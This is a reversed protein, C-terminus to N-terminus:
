LYPALHGAPTAPTFINPDNWFCNDQKTQEEPGTFREGKIFSKQPFFCKPLKLQNKHGTRPPEALLFCVFPFFYNGLM